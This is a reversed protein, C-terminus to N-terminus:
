SWEVASYFESWLLEYRGFSFAAFFIYLRANRICSKTTRFSVNPPFKETVKKQLFLLVLLCFYLLSEYFPAYIASSKTNM